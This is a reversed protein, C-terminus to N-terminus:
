GGRGGGEGVGRGRREVGVEGGTRAAMSSLLAASRSDTVDRDEVLEYRGIGVKRTCAGALWPRARRRKSVIALWPDPTRTRGWTRMGISKRVREDTGKVRERHAHETFRQQGARREM